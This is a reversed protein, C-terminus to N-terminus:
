RSVVMLRRSAAAPRAGERCHGAAVRRDLRALRRHREDATARTLARVDHVFSNM